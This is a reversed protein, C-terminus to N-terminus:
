KMILETNKIAVKTNFNKNEGEFTYLLNDGLRIGSLIYDNHKRIFDSDYGDDGIMGAHEWIYIRGTKKNLIIFDPFVIRGNCILQFGKEYVYEIDSNLLLLDAIMKESKSRVIEGRNTELDKKEEKYTNPIWQEKNWLDLIYEPSPYIPRIYHKISPHINDYIQYKADPNNISKGQKLSEIEVLLEKKLDFCYKKNALFKIIEEDKHKSLYKQIQINNKSTIHRFQYSNHSISIKLRGPPSEKIIKNCEQLAEQLYDISNSEERDYYIYNLVSDKFIGKLVQKFM